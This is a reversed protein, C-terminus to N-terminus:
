TLKLPPPPSRQALRPFPDHLKQLPPPPSIENEKVMAQPFDAALSTDLKSPLGAAVLAKSLEQDRRNDLSRGSLYSFSSKVLALLSGLGAAGTATLKLTEQLSAM